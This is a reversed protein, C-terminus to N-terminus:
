EISQSPKVLLFIDQSDQRLTILAPKCKNRGHLSTLRSVLHLLCRLHQYQGSSHSIHRSGPDDTVSELFSSLEMSWKQLVDQWVMCLILDEGALGPSNLISSHIGGEAGGGCKRAKGTSLLSLTSRDM